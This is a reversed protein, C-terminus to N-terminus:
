KWTRAIPFLAATFVPACTDEENRTEEPYKGLLPIGPDYFINKNM